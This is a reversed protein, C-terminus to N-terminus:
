QTLQLIAVYGNKRDKDLIICLPFASVLFNTQFLYRLILVGTGGDVWGVGVLTKSRLPMM